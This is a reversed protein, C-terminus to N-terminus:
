LNFKEKTELKCKKIAKQHSTSKSFEELYCDCTDKAIEENYKINAKLMEEKFSEICFLNIISNQKTKALYEVNLFGWLLLFNVLVFFKKTASRM